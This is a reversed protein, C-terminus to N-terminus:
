ANLTKYSLQWIAVSKNVKKEKRNQIENEKKYAM